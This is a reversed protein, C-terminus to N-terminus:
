ARFVYKGKSIMDSTKNTYIKKVFFDFLGGKNPYICEVLLMYLIISSKLLFPYYLPNM